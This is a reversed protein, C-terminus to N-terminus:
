GQAAGHQRKPRPINQWLDEYGKLRYKIVKEEDIVAGCGGQSAICAATGLM